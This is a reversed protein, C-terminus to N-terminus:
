GADCEKSGRVCRQRQVSRGRRLRVALERDGRIWVGRASGAPRKDSHGGRTWRGDCHGAGPRLRLPRQRRRPFRALFAAPRHRRFPLAAKRRTASRTRTRLSSIASERPVHGSRHGALLALQQCARPGVPQRCCFKEASTRSGFITIIRHQAHDNGHKSVCNSGVLRIWAATQRM